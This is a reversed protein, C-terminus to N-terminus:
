AVRREGKAWRAREAASLAEDATRLLIRRAAETLLTFEDVDMDEPCPLIRQGMAVMYGSEAVAQLWQRNRHVIRSRDRAMAIRLGRTVRVAHGMRGTALDCAIDPGIDDPGRRGYALAAAILHVAPTPCHNTARGEVPERWSGGGALSMARERFDAREHTFVEARAGQGTRSGM